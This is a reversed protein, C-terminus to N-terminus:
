LSIAENVVGELQESNGGDSALHKQLIQIAGNVRRLTKGAVWATRANMTVAMSWMLYLPIDIWDLERQAMRLCSYWISGTLMLLLTVSLTQTLRQIQRKQILMILILPRIDHLNM